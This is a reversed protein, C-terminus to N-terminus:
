KKAASVRWVTNSADDAVLMSGDQTFAVGAPRGYVKNEEGTIFGTLFDQPEGSPKGSSFPVFLVKYGVLKSHNWSGHQGIFAANKYKGPFAEKDDFALGLSSTHSGVPIDPVITKRVLEPKQKDKM